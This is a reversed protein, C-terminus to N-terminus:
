LVRASIITDFVAGSSNRQTLLGAKGLAPVLSKAEGGCALIHYKGNLGSAEANARM